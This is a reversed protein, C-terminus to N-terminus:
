KPGTYYCNSNPLRLTPPRSPDAKLRIDAPREGVQPESNMIVIRFNKLVIAGGSYSWLEGDIRVTEGNLLQHYQDYKGNPYLRVHSSIIGPANCKDSPRFGYGGVMRHATCGGLLVLLLSIPAMRLRLGSTPMDM